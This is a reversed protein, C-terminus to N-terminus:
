DPDVDHIRGLGGRNRLNPRLPTPTSAQMTVDGHPWYSAM